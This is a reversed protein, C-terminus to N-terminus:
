FKYGISLLAYDNEKDYFNHNAEEREYGVKLTTYLSEFGFPKDWTIGAMVGYIDADIKKDISPNKKEYEKKGINALFALEVDEVLSISVGLDLALRDYSSAKGHANFKEYFLNTIFATDKGLLNTKYINELALIHRYGERKLDKAVDDNDYTKKSFEYIIMSELNESLYFGHGAYVGFETTNTKKRKRNTLFPNKWEEDFKAKIGIDFIASKVEFSTGLNLDGLESFIYINDTENLDYAFYFSVNPFDVQKSKASELSSISRKSDVSFNDKHNVVGAGIEIFNQEAALLSCALVLPTVIKKM